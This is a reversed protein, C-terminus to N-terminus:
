EFFECKYSELADKLKFIFEDEYFSDMVGHIIPKMIEDYYECESTLLCNNCICKVINM